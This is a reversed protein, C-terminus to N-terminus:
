EEVKSGLISELTHGAQEQLTWASLSCQVCGIPVTLSGCLNGLTVAM